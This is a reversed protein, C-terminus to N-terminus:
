VRREAMSFSASSYQAFSYRRARIFDLRQVILVKELFNLLILLPFFMSFWIVQGLQLFVIV